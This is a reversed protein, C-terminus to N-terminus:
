LFLVFLHLLKSPYSLHWNSSYSYLSFSFFTHTDPRDADDTLTIDVPPFLNMRFKRFDTLLLLSQLPSLSYVQFLSLTIGKYLRTEIVPVTVHSACVSISFLSGSSRSFHM